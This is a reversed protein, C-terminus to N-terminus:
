GPMALLGAAGSRTGFLLNRGAADWALAAVGKDEGAEGPRVLLEAGDVHRCLLVAGDEYGQALIPSKPHFAVVTVKASMLGYERPAKNLPGDKASFPWVIAAEAGSTALWGGDHSWSMSRPKGPYGALRLDKADSVRWAHLANEQMATVVFRGDPSATTELHSGKWFLEEPPAAANPFWLSAGNYHSVVLRYGKPMFALGRVSSPAALTKTEGKADRAFVNKGSSWASAGDARAALADIWKGSASKPAAYFEVSSGDARTEVVRGDDGGTLLRGPAAAAVLVASGPHTEVRRPAGPGALLVCGDALALAPADGLFACGVVEAGADFATVLSSLSPRAPADTM